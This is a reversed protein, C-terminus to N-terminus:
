RTQVNKFQTIQRKIIRSPKQQKTKNQKQKKTTTTTQPKQANQKKLHVQFADSLGPQGQVCAGGIEAEQTSSNGVYVVRGLKDKKISLIRQFM